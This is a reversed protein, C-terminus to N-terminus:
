SLRWTEDTDLVGTNGGEILVGGNADEAAAAAYRATPSSSTVLLSWTTGNWTWTDSQATGVGTAGTIGGFLALGSANGGGPNKFFGMSALQRASPAPNQGFPALAWSSGNFLWTDGLVSTGNYGGFVVIQGSADTGAAMYARASPGSGAVSSWHWNGSAANYSLAWTDSLYALGSHGGFVILQHNHTDYAIAAGTRASPGTGTPTVHTWATGNWTWVDGLPAACIGAVPITPCGGFLVDVNADPYNVSAANTRALPGTAPGATWATGNWTWTDGLALTGNDGGFLVDTSGYYSLAAGERAAPLTAPAAHTWSMVYTFQDNQALTTGGPTTVTINVNGAPASPSTAQISCNASADCTLSIAVITGTRSGFKVASAYEFYTGSITVTTGGSESGFNPSIGSITPVPPNATIAVTSTATAASPTESDAVTLTATYSGPLAYSHSTAPSALGTVAASGDGFNWSYTYPGVGGTAAGGSASLSVALPALGSTPSATATVALPPITVTVTTTASASAGLSDTVTVSATYTGHASYTHNVSAASGSVPASGDGFNFAYSSYTGSGGSGSANLTVPLPFNGRSPSASLTASIPSVNVTGTGTNGVSDTVTVTAIYSGGTTYTHTPNQLTSAASGDGFDWSYTYPGGNGGTASSTFSTGLPAAGTTPTGNATVVIPAYSSIGVVASARAGASDTVTLTASYTGAAYSHSPSQATSTSGDGFAWSYTYIGSGGSAGGTLAVALPATGSTPSASATAALPVPM